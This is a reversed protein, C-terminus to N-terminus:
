RPALCIWPKFGWPGPWSPIKGQQGMLYAAGERGRYYSFGEPSAWPGRVVIELSLGRGVTLDPCGSLAERRPEPGTDRGTKGGQGVTAVLGWGGAEGEGEGPPAQRCKWSSVGKGSSAGVAGKVGGELLM